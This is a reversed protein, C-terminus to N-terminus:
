QEKIRVDICTIMIGGLNPDCCLRGTKDRHTAERNHTYCWWTKGTVEKKIVRCLELNYVVLKDISVIFDLLDTDIEKPAKPLKEMLESRLNHLDAAIRSLKDLSERTM